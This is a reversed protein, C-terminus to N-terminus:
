QLTFITGQGQGFGHVWRVSGAEGPPETSQSGQQGVAVQTQGEFAVFPTTVQAKPSEGLAALEAMIAESMGQALAIRGGGGGGVQYWTTNGANGGNALVRGTTGGTFRASSVWISGGASGGGYIGGTAGNATLTGDLRVNRAVILIAGGGPGAPGSYHGYGGPAGPLLPALAYGNTGGGASTPSTTGNGGRGGHGSGGAQESGTKGVTGTPAYTLTSSFWVYGKSNADIGSGDAVTLDALDFRVTSGCIQHAYPWIWSNGALTTVGQVRVQSGGNLLGRTENTPGAFVILRAGNTLAFAGGVTLFVPRNHNLGGLTVTGENQLAGGVEMRIESTGGTGGPFVPETDFGTSGIWVKAGKAVSVDGAADFLFNSESLVVVTNSPISLPSPTIWHNTISPLVLRVGSCLGLSVNLLSVDSLYLTGMQGYNGQETGPLGTGIGPYAYCRLQLNSAPNACHIAIRGGGGHGSSTDNPRGGNAQIVGGTAALSGCTLWVSGGSGGGGYDRGLAGNASVTGNLVAQGAEIRIAGGGAGGGYVFDYHGYTGASGLDLPESASGYNTGSVGASSSGSNGGKGGYSGGAGRANDPIGAGPGYSIQNTVNYGRGDADLKGTSALFFNTAVLWIRSLNATNTVPGAPRVTGSITMVTAALRPGANSQILVASSGLELTDVRAEEDLVCTGSNIVAQDAPGPVGAPNWNNDNFWDGDGGGNTWTRVQPTTSNFIAKVTRPQDVLLDITADYRNALPVDGNWLRFAYGGSATALIGTLSGGADNWVAYDGTNVTGGLGAQLIFQHQLVWHWKLRLDQTMTIPVSLDPGQALTVADTTTLTYGTCHWRTGPTLTSVSEPATATVVSGGAILATVGYAPSPTGPQAPEGSVTLSYTSGPQIVYWVTGTEANYPPANYPAVVTANCLGPNVTNSGTWGAYTLTKTLGGPDTGALLAARDSATLGIGVAIRGGGGGGTGRPGVGGTGGASGNAGLFGSGSFETCTLWISGGASGGGYTITPGGGHATLWGDLRVVAAHIRLAGGGPRAPSDSHGYGGPTGPLLPALAFDNTTGGAAVTSPSQYGAGGKGGHGAGSVANGSTIGAVNTPGYQVSSSVWAYGKENADFGSGAAVTLNTLDFVVTAGSAQHTYVWVWSNSTLLTNGRVTIRGGGDALSRWANTPGAFVILRAGNTLTLAGDVELFVPRANTLGALTVTGENWFSGRVIMRIENTVGPNGASVPATAYGTSGIWVKAGKAVSVDGAAEFIFNSESLVVVTNSPISLPSPTIWHNTISPLVLRVGSCLGLSVNLLSVDSLYLTGMQGYVGQESGPLGAGIGPYAYCRLQLNSAPSACYIAIRGGGGHGSSTDNPRGGNAQIVGGTAALSGCTLWVSGGSGGGGYDRGLAGNASVTGNLVAQGAEIRIAGGGAGGGYVASSHGYTGASGPDLPENASGYNTGSVGSFYSNGGKGGYSGGAGRANDAIGAGPGYAILNTVNYGRGDADLKGTGALFFNTAALWIRSMGSMNTAPGMPRVTGAITMTNATLKTNWNSVTLTRNTLTLQGLAFTSNTLLVNTSSSISDIVVTDGVFPVGQPNWNTATFWNMDSSGVWTRTVPTYAIATFNSVTSWSVGALNSAFISYRYSGAPLLILDTSFVVGTAQLSMAVSSTPAGAEPWYYFWCTPTDGGTTMGRLTNIGSVDISGLNTVTPAVLTTVSQTDSWAFGTTNSAYCRYVYTSGSLLGVLNTAFSQGRMWTTGLDIVSAWASTGSNTGGDIYGWCFAVTTNTDGGDGRLSGNVTAQTLGIATASSAKVELPLVYRVIVIGSGGSAGIDSSGYGYSGGGGGGGTNAVGNSAVLAASGNGGGGNGGLAGTAPSRAGGGGGGAYYTSTGSISCALGVGGHGAATSTGNTGPSGAGGGGSGGNRNNTVSGGAYGQGNTGETAPPSSSAAHGGGSGGNQGQTSEWTGGRGGGYATLAGFVSNAGNAQGAGGLGVSVVSTGVGLSYVNSYIFGGAGGGGGITNGGGGGGAVVLVEVTGNATVVFNSATASNTFIHIRYGPISNNTVNGGTAMMAGVSGPQALMLLLPLLSAALVRRVGRFIMPSNMIM